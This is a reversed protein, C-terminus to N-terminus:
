RTHLSRSSGTLAGTRAGVLFAGELRAAEAKEAKREWGGYVDVTLTISSHGLQRQVWDIRAGNQLAVRAFSHRLSHFNRERGHEGERAIGAAEMAGYLVTRTVTTPSLYGGEPTPFVLGEDPSGCAAYWEELAALAAPTLDVTREKGSKTSQEGIGAVYGRQIRVERELLSVDSWRLALLEGMRCGTTLAVRCLYDYVTEPAL